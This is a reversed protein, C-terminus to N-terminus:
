LRWFWILWYLHVSEMSLNLKMMATLFNPLKRTNTVAEDEIVTEIDQKNRIQAM